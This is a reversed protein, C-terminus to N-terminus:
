ATSTPCPCSAHFSRLSSRTTQMSFVFIRYTVGSSIASLIWNELMSTENIESVFTRPGTFASRALSPCITHRIFGCNSAPLSFTPLCPTTRSGATCRSTIFITISKATEIPNSILFRVNEGTFPGSPFM